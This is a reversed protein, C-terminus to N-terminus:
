SNIGKGFISATDYMYPDRTDSQSNELAEAFAMMANGAKQRKDQKIKLLRARENDVKDQAGQNNALITEDQESQGVAGYKKDVGLSGLKWDENRKDMEDYQKPSYPGQFGTTHGGTFGPENLPTKALDSLHTGYYESQNLENPSFGDPITEGAIINPDDDTEEAGNNQDIVEKNNQEIKVDKQNNDIVRKDKNPSYTDPKFNNMKVEVENKNVQELLSEPKDPDKNTEIYKDEEEDSGMINGYADGLTNKLYDAGSSAADGAWDVADSGADWVNGAVNSAKNWANGAFDLM